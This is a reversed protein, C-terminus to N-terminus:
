GEKFADRLPFRLVTQKEKQQLKVELVDSRPDRVAVARRYVGTRGDQISQRWRQQEGVRLSVILDFVPLNNGQTVVVLFESMGPRPVPPRLEVQVVYDQWKQSPLFNAQQSSCASLLGLFFFVAFLRKIM